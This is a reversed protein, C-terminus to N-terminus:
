EQTRHMEGGHAMKGGEAMMGGDKNLAVRAGREINVSFMKNDNTIYLMKGNEGFDIIKDGIKLGHETIGGKAMMGGDAMYRGDNKISLVSMDYYHGYEDNANKGAFIGDEVSKIYVFEDNNEDYVRLGVLDQKSPLTKYYKSLSVMGGKAMMGGDAKSKLLEKIKSNSLEGVKKRLDKRLSGFEHVDYVPEGSGRYGSIKGVMVEGIEANVIRNTYTGVKGGKAMMGGDAFKFVKDPTHIEYDRMDNYMLSQKKVVEYAEEASKFRGLPQPKGKWYIQVKPTEYKYYSMPKEVEGGKAMMGGAELKPYRKPPQRV